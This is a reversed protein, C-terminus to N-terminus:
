SGTRLGVLPKFLVAASEREDYYGKIQGRENYGLRAYFQRAPLNELRVELRVHHMGATRCAAELWDMLKTAVGQRRYRPDVALLHLHAAEDGFRMIAFGVIEGEITAVLAITEKDSIAERVRRATWRWRLGHEVLSRSMNALTPAETRHALRLTTTGRALM